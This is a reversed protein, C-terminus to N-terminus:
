LSIESMINSLSTSLSETSSLIYRFAAPRSSSMFPSIFQWRSSSMETASSQLRTTGFCSYRSTKVSFLLWTSTTSGCNGVSTFTLETQPPSSIVLWSLQASKLGSISEILTLSVSSPSISWRCFSPSPLLPISQSISLSFSWSSSSSSSSSSQLGSPLMCTLCNYKSLENTPVARSTSSRCGSVMHWIHAVTNLVRYLRNRCKWFRCGSNLINSHSRHRMLKEDTLCNLFWRSSFCELICGVLVISEFCTRKAHSTHPLMYLFLADAIFWRRVCVALFFTRQV